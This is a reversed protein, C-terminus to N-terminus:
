QSLNACFFFFFDIIIILFSYASKYLIRLVCVPGRRNTEDKLANLVYLVEFAKNIMETVHAETPLSSTTPQM